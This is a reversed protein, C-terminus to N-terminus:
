LSNYHIIYLYNTSRLDHPICHRKPISMESALSVVSKLIWGDQHGDAFFRNCHCFFWGSVLLLECVFLDLAFTLSMMSIELFLIIHSKVLRSRESEVYSTIYAILHLTFMPISIIGRPVDWREASSANMCCGCWAEALGPTLSSHGGLSVLQSQSWKREKWCNKTTEFHAIQPLSMRVGVGARTTEFCM